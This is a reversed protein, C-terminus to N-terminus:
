FSKTVFAIFWDTIDEDEWGESELDEAMQNGGDMFRKMAGMNVQGQGMRLLKANYSVENVKRKPKIQIIKIEEKILRRLEQKTM